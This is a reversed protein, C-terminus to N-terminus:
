GPRYKTACAWWGGVASGVECPEM